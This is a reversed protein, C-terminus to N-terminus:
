LADLRNGLETYEPLWGSSAAIECLPGTPLFWFRVDALSAVDGSRLAAARQDLIRVLEDSTDFTSQWSLDHSRSRVIDATEEVVDAVARLDTM